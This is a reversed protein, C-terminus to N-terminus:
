SACRSGAIIACTRRGIRVGEAGFERRLPRLGARDGIWVAPRLKVGFIRAFRRLGGELLGSIICSMDLVAVVVADHTAFEGRGQRGCFSQLFRRSATRNENM